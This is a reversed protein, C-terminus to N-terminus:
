HSIVVPVRVLDRDLTLRCDNALNFRTYYLYARDGITGFNLDDSTPDLLAPYAARVQPNRCNEAGQISMLVESQSWHLLDSSWSYSFQVDLRKRGPGVPKVKEFIALYRQTPMHWVLSRVKQRLGDLPRCAYQSPLGMNKLAPDVFPTEFDKGNWTRWGTPDSLDQTRALCNGSRQEKYGGTHFLSYYHKDRKVINSTTFFGAPQESRHSFRHPARAIVHHPPPALKFSHGSDTSSALVIASWWCGPNGSTPKHCNDFWIGHYDSSGLSYIRKGNAERFFTQLWIRANYQEPDSNMPATYEQACAPKVKDLSPGVFPINQYHTAYLYIQNNSSRFARTPSDPINNDFCKDVSWDFVIELQSAGQSAEISIRPTNGTAYPNPTAAFAVWPLLSLLCIGRM